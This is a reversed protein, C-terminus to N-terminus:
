SAKLVGDRDPQPRPFLAASVPVMSRVGERGHAPEPTRRPQGPDGRRRTVAHPGTPDRRPPRLSGPKHGLSTGAQGAPGLGDFAGGRAGVEDQNLVEAWVAIVVCVPRLRLSTRSVPSPQATAFSDVRRKSTLHQPFKPCTAGDLPRGPPLASIAANDGTPRSAMVLGSRDAARSAPSLSQNMGTEAVIRANM